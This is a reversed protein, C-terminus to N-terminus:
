SINDTSTNVTSGKVKNMDYHKCQRFEIRPYDRQMEITPMRRLHRVAAILDRRGRRVAQVKSEPGHLVAVAFTLSFVRILGGPFLCVMCVDEGDRCEMARAMEFGMRRYIEVNPVDKSSELYCKVGEEDARDTVAEFLKRGIGKGQAEPSVAVINCFYYGRPDDWIQSQAERQSDKWIWYRRTSLGGRGM